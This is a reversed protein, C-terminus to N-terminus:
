SRGMNKNTHREIKKLIKKAKKYAEIDMKNIKELDKKSETINKTKLYCLGRYMRITTEFMSSEPTELLEGFYSIAGKYNEKDMLILGKYLCLLEKISYDEKLNKILRWADDSRGEEYWEKVKSFDSEDNLIWAGKALTEYYKNYVREEWPPLNWLYVLSLILAMAALSLGAIKIHSPKFAKKQKKKKILFRGKEVGTEDVRAFDVEEGEVNLILVQEKQHQNVTIKNSM